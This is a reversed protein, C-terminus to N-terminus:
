NPRFPDNSYNYNYRNGDSTYEINNFQQQTNMSYKNTLSYNSNERDYYELMRANLIREMVDNSYFKM